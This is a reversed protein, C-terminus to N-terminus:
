PPSVRSVRLTSSGGVGRSFVRRVVKKATLVPKLKSLCYASMSTVAKTANDVGGFSSADFVRVGSEDSWRRLTRHTLACKSSSSSSSSSVPCDVSIAFLRKYAKVEDLRQVIQHEFGPASLKVFLRGVDKSSAFSTVLDVANVTPVVFQTIRFFPDTSHEPPMLSGGVGRLDARRSTWIRHWGSRLSVSAPVMSFDVKDLSARAADLRRQVLASSNLAKVPTLARLSRDLKFYMCSRMAPESVATLNPCGLSRSLANLMRVSGSGPLCTNPPDPREHNLFKVFQDLQPVVFPSPEFAVTKWGSKVSPFLDDPLRLTDGWSAGIDLYVNASM